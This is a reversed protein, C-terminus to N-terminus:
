EDKKTKKPMDLNKELRKGIKVQITGKQRGKKKNRGKRTAHAGHVETSQSLNKLAKLSRNQALLDDRVSACRRSWM